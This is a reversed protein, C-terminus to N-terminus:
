EIVFLEHKGQSLYEKTVPYLVPALNVIIQEDKTLRGLEHTERHLENYRYCTAGHQVFCHNRELVHFKKPSPASSLLQGKLLTDTLWLKLQLPQSSINKAQLDLYNSFVTAGSGFPLTRNYDPFVDISHHHREVIEMEAHLFIWYLFNSLQCLGGGLGSSVKGNSLLMGDVYGKRRTVSGLTHWLSFTKGPTIVLGDLKAVAITLNSVKNQQMVDTIDAPKRFLVSSHRAIVAPLYACKRLTPLTLLNKLARHVRRLAIAPGKLFPYRQSLAQREPKARTWM